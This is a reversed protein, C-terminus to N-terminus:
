HRRCLYPVLKFFGKLNSLGMVYKSLHNTNEVEFMKGEPFDKRYRLVAYYTFLLLLQIKMRYTIIEAKVM